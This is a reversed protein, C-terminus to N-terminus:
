VRKVSLVLDRELGPNGGVVGLVLFCQAEHDKEEAFQTVPVAVLVNLVVAIGVERAGLVVHAM